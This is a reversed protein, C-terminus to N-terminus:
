ASTTLYRSGPKTVPISKLHEPLDNEQYAPINIDILSNIEIGGIEQKGSRNIISTLLVVEAGLKKLLDVVEFSSKGTTIVDEVVILKDEPEVFFGRRLEFSGNVRECFINPLNLHRSLEYGVLLGGMAPSILKTVGKSKVIDKINFALQKLLMEARDAHMMLKACQVYTDSHLGSSLKFHGKVIAESKTLLDIVQEKNM